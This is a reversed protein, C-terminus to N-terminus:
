PDRMVNYVVDGHVITMAIHLDPTLLVLDADYGPAIRGKHRGLGLLDAPITTVTAIAEALTCSTYTIFNRVATDMGLISGALTGDPLRCTTEDVTVRFDSLDYDGPPMGLAAMADTVVNLRPGAIQWVLKLLAPHVHIGDPIIGMTAQEDDLLAGILGPERHHLGPMANFLHTGYCVGAAFGAKAEAFTAMSHGASVIVGREALATIVPLAGPLEPALTVLRVHTKPSWDAIAELSPLQMYQPNHAGKKQPNLFPGELHLGVPEAGSFAKQLPSPRVGLTQQAMVEQAKAVTVLPSTIVTPLFSTVGFQPLRAAVEWITEPQRTFDLAFAGNLQLDIFGPVLLHDPAHITAPSATAPAVATIRGDTVKVVGDQIVGDPTLINAQITFM